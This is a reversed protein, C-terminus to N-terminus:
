NRKMGTVGTRCIEIIDYDADLVDLFADIKIPKGTLELIMSSPSLDVVSAKYIRAIEAIRGRSEKNAKVKVLTIERFVGEEQKLVEINRVEELKETQSTIQHLGIEDVIVTLTIRSFKPDITASVTLTEINFGRRAFLSSIRALIGANNEVLISIVEFNAM